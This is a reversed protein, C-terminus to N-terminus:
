LNLMDSNNKQMNINKEGKESYDTVAQGFQMDAPRSFREGHAISKREYCTFPSVEDTIYCPEFAGKHIDYTNRM